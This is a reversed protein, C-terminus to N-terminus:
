EKIGEDGDDPNMPDARLVSVRGVAMEGPSSVEKSGDERIEVSALGMAVFEADLAVTLGGHLLRDIEKETLPVFNRTIRASEPDANLCHDELFMELSCHCGPPITGMGDPHLTASSLPTATSLQRDHVAVQALSRKQVYVALVPTRWEPGFDVAEQRASPTIVFDNLVMWNSDEEEDEETSTAGESTPPSPSVSDGHGSGAGSGVSSAAAAYSRGAVAAAYSFPRPIQSSSLSAQYTPSPHSIVGPSMFRTPTGKPPTPIVGVGAPTGAVGVGAGVAAAGEAPPPPGRASSSMSPGRATGSTRYTDTHYDPPINTIGVLHGQPCKRKPRDRVHLAVSQLEYKYYNGRPRPLANSNNNKASISYPKTTSVDTILTRDHPDNYGLWLTTPLFDRGGVSWFAAQTETRPCIDMLLVPPFLLMTQDLSMGTMLRTAIRLQRRETTGDRDDMVMTLYVKELKPPRFRTICEMILDWPVVCGGVCQLSIGRLSHRSASLVRSLNIEGDPGPPSPLWRRCVMHQLQPGLGRDLAMNLTVESLVGVSFGELTELSGASLRHVLGQAVRDSWLGLHLRRLHGSSNWTPMGRKFVIQRAADPGDDLSEERRRARQLVDLTELVPCSALFHILWSAIGNDNSFTDYDITNPGFDLGTLRVEKLRSHLVSRTVTGSAPYSIAEDQRLGIDLAELYPIPDSSSCSPSLIDYIPSATVGILELRRLRQIASLTLLLKPLPEVRGHVRLESVCAFMTVVANYKGISWEGTSLPPELDAHSWSTPELVISRALKSVLGLSKLSGSVGLYPVVLPLSAYFLDASPSIVPSSPLM